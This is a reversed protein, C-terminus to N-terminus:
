EAPMDSAVRTVFSRGPLAREGFRAVDGDAPRVLVAPTAGLDGLLDGVDLLHRAGARRLDDAIQTDADGPRRDHGVAGLLLLPAEQRADEVGALQPAEAERLRARAGVEGREARLGHEVAVVEDDGPLFTHVV